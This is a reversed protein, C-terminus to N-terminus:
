IVGKAVLVAIWLTVQALLAWTARTFEDLKDDIIADNGAWQDQGYRAVVARIDEGDDTKSEPLDLLARANITLRLGVREDPAKTTDDDKRTPQLVRIAEFLGYALALLPLAALFDLVRADSPAALAEGGLFTAVLSTAAVLVATRQRINDLVGAQQDLARIAHGHALEAAAPTTRRDAAPAAPAIEDNHSM